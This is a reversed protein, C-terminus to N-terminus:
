SSSLPLTIDRYIKDNFEYAITETKINEILYKFFLDKNKFSKPETNNKFLLIENEHEYYVVITNKGDSNLIFIKSTVCGLAILSSCLLSYYDLEDGIENKLTESPTQWFQIPLSTIKIRKELNNFLNISAEKINKQSFNEFSSKIESSLSIIDELDPNILKPLDPLYLSEVQEIHDKYRM